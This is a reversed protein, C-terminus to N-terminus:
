GVGTVCAHVAGAVAQTFMPPTASLRKPISINVTFVAVGGHERYGCVVRRRFPLADPWRVSLCLVAAGVVLLVVPMAWAFRLGAERFARCVARMHFPLRGFVVGRM